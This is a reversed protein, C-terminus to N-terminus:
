APRELGRDAARVELEHVPKVVGGTGDGVVM